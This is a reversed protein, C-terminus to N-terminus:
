RHRYKLTVKKEEDDWDVEDAGTINGMFRAPLMSRAQKIVPVVNSNTPDILMARGNVLAIPKGIWFEIVLDYVPAEEFEVAWAERLAPFNPLDASKWRMFAYSLECFGKKGWGPGWSNACRIYVEKQYKTTVMEHLGLIRGQPPGIPDKGDWYMFNDTVLIAIRVLLGMAMAQEIEEVNQLRAYGKIKYNAAREHMWSEIKPLGNILSYPLQPGELTGYKQAVKLSIRPYTGEMDPLGDYQKCIGYNYLTSFGGDPLKQKRNFGMGKIAANTKGVCTGRHKQDLVEHLLHEQDVSEPVTVPLHKLKYLSWDDRDPPSPIMDGVVKGDITQPTLLGRDQAMRIYELWESVRQEFM